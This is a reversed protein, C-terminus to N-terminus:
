EELEAHQTWLTLYECKQPCVDSSEEICCESAVPCQMCLTSSYPSTITEELDSLLCYRYAGEKDRFYNLRRSLILKDLCRQTDDPTLPIRMAGTANLTTTLESVTRPGHQQIIRLIIRTLESIFELDVKGGKHFIDEEKAFEPLMYLNTRRKDSAKHLSGSDVMSNLLSTAETQKLSFRTAIDRVTAGKDGVEKMFLLIAQEKQARNGSAVVNSENLYFHVKGKDKSAIIQKERLLQQLGVAIDAQQLGQETALKLIDSQEIVGDKKILALLVSTAPAAQAM